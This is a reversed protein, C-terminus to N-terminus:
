RSKELASRAADLYYDLILDKSTTGYLTRGIIVGERDVFVTMPYSNQNIAKVLSEPAIINLFKVGNEEILHKGEEIDVNDGGDNLVGIVAGGFKQMEDDVSNLSPLEMVCPGCWTAWFNLMTIENRAFLDESSVPNGYLDITQFALKKGALSTNRFICGSLLLTLVVAMVFKFM